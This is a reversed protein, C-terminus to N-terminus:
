KRDEVAQPPRTSAPVGSAPQPAQGLMSVMAMRSGSPRGRGASATSLSAAALTAAAKARSQSTTRCTRSTELVPREPILRGAARARAVAAPSRIATTTSAHWNRQEASCIRCSKRQPWITIILPDFNAPPGAKEPAKSTGGSQRSRTSAKADLGIKGGIRGDM